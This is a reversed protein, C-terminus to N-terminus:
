YIGATFNVELQTGAPQVSYKLGDGFVLANRVPDYTWGTKVDNPIVQSGYTVVITDVVPPRSLYMFKGVKEIVDKAITALKTGYDPDCINYEIGKALNLFEEVKLPADGQDSECAPNAVSSPVLAGYALVKDAHGGKLQVLLNYLSQPNMKTSQDEADTVMIIALTANPRLFGANERTSLPPTVAAAIPDFMSEQGSGSIGVLLNQELVNLGNPTHRDIFSIGTKYHVLKGDGCAREGGWRTNPSDCGSSYPDAPDYPTAGDMSTTVVGIHYDLMQTKQVEATFQKINKSLNSQHSSMSGSDDVVFLIDVEQNFTAHEESNRVKEVPQGLHPERYPTEPSCSAMVALVCVAAAVRGLTRAMHTRKLQSTNSAQELSMTTFGKRM